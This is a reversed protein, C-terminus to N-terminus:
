RGRTSKRLGSILTEILINLRRRYAAEAMSGTKLAGHAAAVMMEAAAQGRMGLRALKERLIADISAQYTAIAPAAFAQKSDLLEAAHPSGALLRNPAGIVTDLFAVLAGVDSDATDMAHRGAALADACMKEALAAFLADKSEFSLYVTGKAIGAEHAVDDMSTRRVGYRLFLSQAAALIRAQKENGATRVGGDDSQASSQSRRADSIM